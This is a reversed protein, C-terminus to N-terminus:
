PQEGISQLDKQLLDFQDKLKKDILSHELLKPFSIMTISVLMLISHSFDDFRLDGNLNVGDPTYDIIEDIAKLSQHTYGCYTRYLVYERLMGNRKALEKVSINVNGNQSKFQQCNSLLEDLRTQPVVDYFENEKIDNLTKIANFNVDLIMEKLFDKNNLLEIIKFSLELISRVVINAAGPLGREFLLVASQFLKNLEVISAVLFKDQQSVTKGVFSNQLEDLFSKVKFVVLYEPKHEERFLSITENLKLDLVGDELEM